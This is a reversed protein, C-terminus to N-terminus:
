GKIWKHTTRVSGPSQKRPPASHFRFLTHSPILWIKWEAGKWSRLHFLGVSESPFSLPTQYTVPVCSVHLWLPFCMTAVFQIWKQELCMNEKTIVHLNHALSKDFWRIKEKQSHLDVITQGVNPCYNRTLTMLECKNKARHVNTNVCHKFGSIRRRVNATKKKHILPGTILLAFGHQLPTKIEHESWTVPSLTM